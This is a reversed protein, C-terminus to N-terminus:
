PIPKVMFLKKLQNKIGAPIVGASFQRAAAYGTKRKLEAAKILSVVHDHHNVTQRENIDPGRYEYLAQLEDDSKLCVFHHQRMFDNLTETSFYYVHPRHIDKLFDYSRRGNKLSNLGPLAIYVLDGPKLAAELNALEGHADTFHELVHSLVVLDAKIGANKLESLGGTVAQIGRTKAYKLFRDNYDFLFRDAIKSFCHLIGGTAGGVDVATLKGADTKRNLFDKVFAHLKESKEKQSRYLTDPDESINNSYLKRYWNTYFDITSQKDWYKEARILGCSGCLVLHYEYGYRSVTSILYSADKGCLCALPVTRYNKKQHEDFSKFMQMVEDSEKIVAKGIDFYRGSLKLKKM